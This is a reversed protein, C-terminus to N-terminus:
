KRQQEQLVQLIQMGYQQVLFFVELMTNVIEKASENIEGTELYGNVEAAKVIGEDDRLDDLLSEFIGRRFELVLEANSQSNIFFKRDM